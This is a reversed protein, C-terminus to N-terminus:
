KIKSDEITFTKNGISKIIETVTAENNSGRAKLQNSAVFLTVVILVGVIFIGMNDYLLEKLGGREDKVKAKFKKLM